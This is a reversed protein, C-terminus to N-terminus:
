GHPGTTLFMAPNPACLSFYSLRLCCNERMHQAVAMVMLMEGMDAYKM